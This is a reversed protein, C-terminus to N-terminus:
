VQSLGGVHGYRQIDGVSLKSLAKIITVQSNENYIEVLLNGVFQTCNVGFHSADFSSVGLTLKLVPPSFRHHGAAPEAFPTGLLILCSCIYIFAM